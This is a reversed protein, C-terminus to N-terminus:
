KFKKYQLFGHLYMQKTSYNKKYRPNWKAHYCQRELISIDSDFLKYFPISFATPPIDGSIVPIYALEITQTECYWRDSSPLVANKFIGRLKQVLSAYEQEITNDEDLSYEKVIYAHHNTVFLEGGVEDPIRALIDQFFTKGRRYRLKAKYAIAEGKPSTDLVQCWVNM